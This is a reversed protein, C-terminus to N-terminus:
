LYTVLSKKPAEYHSFFNELKSTKLGIKKLFDYLETNGSFSIPMDPGSLNKLVFSEVIERKLNSDHIIILQERGSFKATQHRILAEDLM